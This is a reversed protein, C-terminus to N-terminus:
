PSCLTINEPAILVVESVHTESRTDPSFQHHSFTIVWLDRNYVGQFWTKM